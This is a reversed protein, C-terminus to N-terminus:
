GGSPRARCRSTRRRSRRCRTPTTPHRVDRLSAGRRRRRSAGRWPTPGRARRPTRRCSASGHASRASSRSRGAGRARAPRTGARRGASRRARRRRTADARLRQHAPLMGFAPEDSRGLEDRQGLLRAQDHLHAPPDDLLRCAFAARQCSSCESGNWTDILREARWSTCGSRASRTASTIACVPTRGDLRHKSIVSLTSISSASVTM